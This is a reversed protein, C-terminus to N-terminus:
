KNGRGKELDISISGNCTPYAKCGWFAKGSERGMKKIMEGDCKPCTHRMDVSKEIAVTCECKPFGSCGWFQNGTNKGKRATRLMMAKGCKPCDPATEAASEHPSAAEKLGLKALYDISAPKHHLALVEAFRKLGVSPLTRALNSFVSGFTNGSNDDKFRGLFRDSKMVMSCDYTGKSPKTLRSKPSILVINKFEPTLTRSLRKPLLDCKQLFHRLLSIHRENQTIPSPIDFPKNNYFYCFAGEESISVGSAFNKTEIVYIDLMRSILLHDIQAVDGEHEIRLDHILAWDESRRFDFDLYYASTEEGKNGSRLSKLEREIASKKEKPFDRELLDSLFDVQAQQDDKSKIIM